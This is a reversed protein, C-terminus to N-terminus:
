VGWLEHKDIVPCFAPYRSIFAAAKDTIASDIITMRARTCAEFHSLEALKLALTQGFEGFGFLFYHFVEVSNRKTPSVKPGSSPSPLYVNAAIDELLRRTTRELSNFVEIDILEQQIDGNDQTSTSTTRSLYFSKERVIEALDKNLIHVHCQLKPLTRGYSRKRGLRNLIDRIEIVAEINCDDSGTVVFIERARHVRATELVEKRTADDVLVVAGMERAWAISKNNADPEIVVLQFESKMKELDALVQRGIRGLGCVVVHQSKFRLGLTEYSEHFLIAIGKSAVMTALLIASIMAIRLLLSSELVTHDINFAFIQFTEYIAGALSVTEGRSTAQNAVIADPGIVLQSNRNSNFGGESDPKESANNTGQPLLVPKNSQQNGIDAFGLCGCILVTLGLIIIVAGIHKDIWHMTKLFMRPRVRYGLFSLTAILAIIELFLYHPSNM